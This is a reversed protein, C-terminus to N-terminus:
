LVEVALLSQAPREISASKSDDLRGIPIEDLQQGASFTKLPWTVNERLLRQEGMIAVALEAEGGGRGHEM